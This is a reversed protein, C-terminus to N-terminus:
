GRTPVTRGAATPIAEFIPQSLRKVLLVYRERPQFGLNRLFASPTGSGAPQLALVRAADEFADVAAAYLGDAHRECGPEVLLTLQGHPAAQVVGRARDDETAVLEVSGRGLWRREQVACWEDYTMGLAQRAGVPLTRGYLQFLAHLDAEAVARVGERGADHPSRAPRDLVWLEEDLAHVFGARQMERLAPAEDRVRLLIRAVGDELAAESAQALLGGVVGDEDAGADVLTDIEWADDSALPRATAIGHIQRGRVDIWVRRGRGLWQQVTAALAHPPSSPKGLAERTVAQNEFVEGDFSMLAVLDSPRPAHTHTM